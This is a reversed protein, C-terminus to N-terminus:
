KEERRMGKTDRRATSQNHSFRPLMCRGNDSLFCAPRTCSDSDETFFSSLAPFITRVFSSGALRNLPTGSPRQRFAHDCLAAARQYFGPLSSLWSQSPRRLLPHQFSEFMSPSFIFLLLM